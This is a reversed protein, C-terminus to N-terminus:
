IKNKNQQFIYFLSRFILIAVIPMLAPNLHQPLFFWCLLLLINFVANVLFFRRAFQKKSHIYFAAIAHTPWAWLLNYNDKTMLHDTGIWMFILLIGLLGTIFFIFGDFAFLIRQIFVNKSFSLFLIILFICTFIFLPHEPINIKKRTIPANFLNHKEYVLPKNGVTASDFSKMLYDPLFMVERPKMDVDLRRGLLIDIGLKSWPKDNYNLYEYILDRFTAKTKLIEKFHVPSGAAKEAKFHVPSGAAKEVLDRLRTTCNDFTFDYKYYRSQAMLNAQLLLLMNYKEACSLNLVQETIERNEEKYPYIFSDFNDTSLYYLLKGRIFKTYFGPEEFNFTGYNFVIDSHSGTDTIRIASHGFSSYLDEGPSCTLLSIRLNCSDTQSFAKTSFLLICIAFLAAISNKLLKM